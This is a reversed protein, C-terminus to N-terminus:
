SNEAILESYKTELSEFKRELEQLKIKLHDIEEDKEKLAIELRENYKQENLVKLNELMELNTARETALEEKM